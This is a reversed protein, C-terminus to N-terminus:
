DAKMSKARRCGLVSDRETKQYAYVKVPTKQFKGVAQGLQDYKFFSDSQLFKLREFQHEFEELKTEYLFKGLYSYRAAFVIIGGPKLSLLMQEFIKEDMDNGKILGTCTV